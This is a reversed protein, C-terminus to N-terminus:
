SESQEKNGSSDGDKAKKTNRTLVESFHPNNSAKEAMRGTLEITDGTSINEVGYAGVNECNSKIFKFKM